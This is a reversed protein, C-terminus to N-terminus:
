RIFKSSLKLENGSMNLFLHFFIIFGNLYNEVLTSCMISTPYDGIASALGTILSPEVYGNPLVAPPLYFSTEETHTHKYQVSRLYGAVLSEMTM